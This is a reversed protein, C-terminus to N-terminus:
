TFPRAACFGAAKRWPGRSFAFCSGTGASDRPAAAPFTACRSCASSPKTIPRGCGKWAPASSGTGSPNGPPYDNPDWTRLTGDGVAKAHDLTGQLPTVFFPYAFDAIRAVREAEDLVMEPTQRPFGVMWGTDVLIGKSHFAQVTAAYLSPDNQTKGLTKHVVEPDLSEMGVFVRKVGMAALAPIEATVNKVDLQVMFRLIGGLRENLGTLLDVTQHYKPSRRFNDDTIFFRYYGFTKYAREVWDAVAYADRARPRRGRLVWESCYPCDFPCGESTSLGIYGGVAGRLERPLPHSPMPAAALDCYGEQAYCPHLGGDLFDKLIIPITSEGEGVNFCIGSAHIHRYTKVDSLTVGPGGMVVSVGAARLRRAIDIGRSLEMSRCSIFALVADGGRTRRVIEQLYEDGTQLREEYFEVDLRINLKRAAEQAVSRLALFVPSLLQVWYHQELRGDEGNEHGYYSPIIIPLYIGPQSLKSVM